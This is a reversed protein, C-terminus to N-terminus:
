TLLSDRDELLSNAVEVSGSSEPSYASTLNELMNVWFVRDM